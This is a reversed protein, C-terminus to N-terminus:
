AVSMLKELRAQWHKASRGIRDLIEAVERSLVAKGYGLGVYLGRDLDGLRVRRELGSARAGLQPRAFSSSPLAFIKEGCIYVFIYLHLIDIFEAGHAERVFPPFAGAWKVMWNMPVGGLLSKRAREFFAKSKPRESIFKQQESQMLSRLRERSISPM